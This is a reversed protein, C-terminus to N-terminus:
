NPPLKDQSLTGSLYSEIAETGKVTLEVFAMRRDTPHSSRCILRQAELYDMWRLATTKSAGSMETLRNVTQRQGSHKSYLLLLMDWAPEGFMAKHFIACRRRRDALIDLAREQLFEAKASKRVPRDGSEVELLIRKHGRSLLLLLAQAGEVEHRSLKVVIPEDPDSAGADRSADTM